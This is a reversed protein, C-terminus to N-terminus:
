VRVRVGRRVGDDGVEKRFRMHPGNGRMLRRAEQRNQPLSGLNLRAGGSRASRMLADAVGQATTPRRRKPLVDVFKLDDM